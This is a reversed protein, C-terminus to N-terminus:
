TTICTSSVINTNAAITLHNTIHLKICAHGNYEPCSLQVSLVTLSTFEVVSYSPLTSTHRSPTHPVTHPIITISSDDTTSSSKISTDNANSFKLENIGHCKVTLLLDEVALPTQTHEKPVNKSLQNVGVANFIIFLRVGM